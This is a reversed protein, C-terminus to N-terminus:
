FQRDSPTYEGTNAKLMRQRAQMSQLRRNDITQKSLYFGYFSGFVALTRHFEIVFFIDQKLIHNLVYSITVHIYGASIVEFLRHASLSLYVSDAM